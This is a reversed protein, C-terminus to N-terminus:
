RASQTHVCMDTHIHIYVCTDRAKHMTLIYPFEKKDSVENLNLIYMKFKYKTKRMYTTKMGTKKSFLNLHIYLGRMQGFFFFLLTLTISYSFEIRVVPFSDKFEM